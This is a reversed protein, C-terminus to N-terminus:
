RILTRKKRSTFLRLLFHFTSLLFTFSVSFLGPVSLYVVVSRTTFLSPHTTALFARYSSTHSTAFTNYFHLPLLTNYFHTPLCVPIYTALLSLGLHLVIYSSPSPTPSCPRPPHIPPPPFSVTVVVILPATILTLAPPSPSPPRTCDITSPHISWLSFSLVHPHLCVPNPIPNM